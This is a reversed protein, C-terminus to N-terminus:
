NVAIYDYDHMHAYNAIASAMEKGTQTDRVISRVRILNKGIHLVEVEFDFSEGFFPRIYSVTIDTTTVNEGGAFASVTMGMSLDFMTATAGGHMEGRHNLEWDLKQYRILATRKEYDCSIVEPELQASLSTDKDRFFTEIIKFQEELQEQSKVEVVEHEERISDITSGNGCFFVEVDYYFSPQSAVRKAKTIRGPISGPNGGHFPPTKVAQGYSWISFYAAVDQKGLLDGEM